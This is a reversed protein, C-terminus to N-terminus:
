KNQADQLARIYIIIDSINEDTLTPNGGRGPMDVGTTNVPDWTTRGIKVFTLLNKDNLGAVFESTVLPKGSNPMGIGGDGHCASCTGTYLELGRAYGEPDALTAVEVVPPALPVPALGVNVQWMVLWGAAAAAVAAVTVGMSIVFARLEGSPKSTNTQTTESVM